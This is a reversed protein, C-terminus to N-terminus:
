MGPRAPPGSHQMGPSGDPLEGGEDRRPPHLRTIIEDQIAQPNAYATFGAPPQFVEPPPAQRQIETLDLTFSEPGSTEQLRVPLGNLDTAQWVTYTALTGDPLTAQLNRVQVPHGNLSETAAPKAGPAESLPTPLGPTSTPAYGQLQGSLMYGRATAVNWIFSRDSKGGPVYTLEVGRGLLEGSVTRSPGGAKPTALTTRAMFGPSNSFLQSTPGALFAPTEVSGAEMLLDHRGPHPSSCGAALLGVLVWGGAIRATAGARGPRGIGRHGAVHYTAM